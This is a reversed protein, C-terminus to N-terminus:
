YRRAFPFSALGFTTISEPNRVADRSEFVKASTYPFVCWLLYYDQLRFPNQRLLIWLVM